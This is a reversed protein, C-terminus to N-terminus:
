RTEFGEEIIRFGDKNDERDEIAGQKLISYTKEQSTFVIIEGEHDLGIIRFNYTSSQAPITNFTDAAIDGYTFKGFLSNSQLEELNLEILAPLDVEYDFATITILGSSDMGKKEVSMYFAGEDIMEEETVKWDSPLSFAFDKREVTSPVGKDEKKNGFPICSTVLLLTAFLLINTKKM